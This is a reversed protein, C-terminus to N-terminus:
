ASQLIARLTAIDIPKTVHMDFGAAMSAQRDDEQGYGTLAVLIPQKALQLNRIERALQHGSVDPMAIDSIVIDPQFEHIRELARRASQEVQVEQELKTLLKGLLYSASENDDIILVRHCRATKGEARQGLESALAPADLAPLCVIFRSGQGAGDSQAVVKGGHMEVLTKVLTLGIGLGSQSRTASSDVQTFLEFVHSLMSQPIGIGNDAVAVKIETGERDVSLHIQGRPPTYKAANILLNGIVQTIRAKDGEIVVPEAPSQFQLQHGAAEILPRSVDLAADIADRLDMRDRRLELRGTSIRSVDLLDDILRKLQATQRTMVEAMERVHPPISTESAILDAAIMLPSLPNRLEHALMALFQDKRHDADRLTTQLTKQDHIDTATGFWRLVEGRENRIPVARGLHWRYQETTADRFRYEIEMPSGSRVAADWAAQARDRDDPHVVKLRQERSNVADTQGTYEYWRRNFYEVSGDPRASWVIQPMSDALERFARESEQLAKEVTKRETIDLSIGVIRLREGNPGAIVAGKGAMWRVGGPTAVRFEEYFHNEASSRAREFTNRVRDRDEPAIRKILEDVPVPGSSPIGLLRKMDPSINALNTAFEIEWTGVNAVEQALQLYFKEPASLTFVKSADEQQVVVADVEGSRIAQVTQEAIELRDLAEALQTKLDAVQARLQAAERGEAVQDSGLPPM